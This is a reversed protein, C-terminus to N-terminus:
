EPKEGALEDGVGAITRSTSEHGERPYLRHPPQHGFADSMWVEQFVSGAFPFGSDDVAERLRTSGHAFSSIDNPNNAIILLWLPEVPRYRGQQIAVRLDAEKKELASRLAGSNPTCWGTQTQYNSIPIPDLIPWRWRKLEVLTLHESLLQWTEAGYLWGDSSKKLPRDLPWNVFCIERYDGVELGAQAQDKVCRILEQALATHYRHPPLEPDRFTVNIKVGHLSAVDARLSELTELLQSWRKQAAARGQEPHYETIEIGLPVGEDFYVLVDPPDGGREIRSHAIGAARLFDEVQKQELALKSPRNDSV